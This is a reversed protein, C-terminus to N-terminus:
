DPQLKAAKGLAADVFRNSPDLNLVGIWHALVDALNRHLLRFAGVGLLILLVAKFLKFLAIARILRDNSPEM